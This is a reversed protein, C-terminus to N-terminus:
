ECSVQNRGNGKGRYLAKDAREVASNQDDKACLCTAGITAKPSLLTGHIRVEAQQILFLCRKALLETLGPDADALLVLLEDGGWRGVTDNSRLSSSLTRGVLKLVEDGVNHGCSDNIAKFNDLDVLLLGFNRGFLKVEEIAQPIRMDLYRRNRLGTLEDIEAATQLEANRRELDKRKSADRFLEVAGIAVGRRSLIPAV